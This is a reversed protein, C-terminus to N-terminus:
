FKPFCLIDDTCPQQAKANLNKNNIKNCSERIQYLLKTIKCLKTIKYLLETIKNLKILQGLWVKIIQYFFIILASM